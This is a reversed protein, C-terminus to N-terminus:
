CRDNLLESTQGVLCIGIWFRSSGREDGFSFTDIGLKPCQFSFTDFCEGVLTRKLTDAFDNGEGFFQGCIEAVYTVLEVFQISSKALTQHLAVAASSFNQFGQEGAYVQNGLTLM